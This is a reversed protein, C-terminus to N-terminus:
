DGGKNQTKQRCFQGPTVGTIRKFLRMFYQESQYGAKRAAEGVSAGGALLEKAREVRYRQIYENASLGTAQRILRQLVHVTMQCAAALESVPLRGAYLQMLRSDVRHLAPPERTEGRPRSIGTRRQAAMLCLCEQAMLSGLIDGPLSMSATMVMQNILQGMMGGADTLVLWAASSDALEAYAPDAEYEVAPFPKRAGSRGCSLEGPTTGSSGCPGHLCM